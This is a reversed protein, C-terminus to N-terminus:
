TYKAVNQEKIPWILSNMIGVLKKKEMRLGRYYM